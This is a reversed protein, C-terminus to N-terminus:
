DIPAGCFDCSTHRKGYQGCYPCKVNKGEITIEISDIHTSSFTPTQYTTLGEDVRERAKEVTQQLKDLHREVEKWDISPM